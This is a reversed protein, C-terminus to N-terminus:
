MMEASKGWYDECERETERDCHCRRTELNFFCPCKFEDHFIGELFHGARSDDSRYEKTHPDPRKCLISVGTDACNNHSDREYLMEHKNVDFKDNSSDTPPSKIGLTNALAGIAYDAVGGGVDQDGDRKGYRGAQPGFALKLKDYAYRSFKM